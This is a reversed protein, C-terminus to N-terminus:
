FFSGGKEFRRENGKRESMLLFFLLFPVFAMSDEMVAEEGM